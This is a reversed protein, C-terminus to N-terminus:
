EVVLSGTLKVDEVSAAVYVQYTGRPLVWGQSEVDWVSLDRRMLAFTVEESAGVELPVKAFGRLQKAPTDAYPIGVYLQVVEAGSYNGTNTVTATVTALTEWLSELGGEVVAGAPAAEPPSAVTLQADLAGYAFTTYSLGFGFPYRPTINQAAFYRYDLYLGETFNAQTYYNSVNDARVPELLNGYDAEAKAVTYPLKGSFSVDGYILPVLSRGSDQGPLHAYVVATVNPHEIWADVLRIGANHIVVITNPCKSAVNTVLTDSWPDTLATRDFQRHNM